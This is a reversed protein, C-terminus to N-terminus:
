VFNDILLTSLAHPYWNAGACNLADFVLMLMLRAHPYWNVGAHFFNKFFHFIVFILIFFVSNFLAHPYWNVGACNLTDFVLILM